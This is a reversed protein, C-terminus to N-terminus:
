MQSEFARVSNVAIQVMLPIRELPLDSVLDRGALALQKWTGHNAQGRLALASIACQRAWFQRRSPLYRAVIATVRQRFSKLPRILDDLAESAEYWHEVFEKHLLATYAKAAAAPTTQDPPLAALLEDVIALASAHDPHLPPLGLSEVVEVLRFPPLIASTVNDALALRLMRTMGVVDTKSMPVSTRMQRLLENMQPKSLDPIIMADSVGSPKMVVSALQYKAGLRQVALVSRTGSGDCISVHSEVFEPLIRKQPSAAHLRLAKIVPAIRNQRAAPLWPRLQLLREILMNDVPVDSACTRLAETAAQAIISDPHLVFGALAHNVDARRLAALASFIQGGAEVPLASLLSGLFEQIDFPSSEGSESLEPLLLSLGGAGIPSNDNTKSHLAQAVAAKLCDPVAWGADNFIKGTMILDAPAFSRDNLASALYDEIARVNERARRDGSNSDIRLDNLVDMLDVIRATKADGHEEDNGCIELYEAFRAVPDTGGFLGSGEGLAESILAVIDEGSLPPVTNFAEISNRGQASKRQPSRTAPRTKRAVFLEKTLPSIRVWLSAGGGSM